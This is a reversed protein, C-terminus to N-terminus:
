SIASSRVKEGAPGLFGQPKSAVSADLDILIPHM